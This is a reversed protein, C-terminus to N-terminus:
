PASPNPPDFEIPTVTIRSTSVASGKMFELMLDKIRPSGVFLSQSHAAGNIIVLTSNRFGKRVEEANSIPTRGDITGSVFLAPVDSNLDSRFTSDLESVGWAACIEPFPFDLDRGLFTGSEEREIRTWRERSVGSACDMAFPMASMQQHRYDLAWKALSSFDGLSMSYLMAPFAKIETERGIYAATMLRLDFDSVTVMTKSQTDPDVVVVIVPQNKLHDSVTKLLGVLDPINQSLTPDSRCLQAIIELQRQANSPLKYTQDPAEMGSMIVKQIHEGHRRLVAIALTTGYSHALLSIREAGLAQRLADVDDASENTNYASLDVGKDKWYSACEQAQQKWAAVLDQRNAPHNLPYDLRQKCKLNRESLGTGRQDLAIVDGVERLALIVPSRAAKAQEIGPQGPGGALFVIPPGPNKAISRLRVFALKILESKTNHRNEPVILTGLEADIKEGEATQFLYPKLTLDGPKRNLKCSAMTVLLLISLLSLGEAKM